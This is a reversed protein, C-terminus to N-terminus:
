GHPVEAECLADCACCTTECYGCGVCWATRPEGCRACTSTAGHGSRIWHLTAAPRMARLEAEAKEARDEAARLDTLLRACGLCSTEWTIGEEYSRRMAREATLDREIDARSAQGPALVDVVEVGQGDLGAAVDLGLLGASCGAAHIAWAFVASREDRGHATIALARAQWDCVPATQVEITHLEPADDVRLVLRWVRGRAAFVRHFEELGDLSDTM